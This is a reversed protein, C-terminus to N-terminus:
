VEGYGPGVTEAVLIKLRELDGALREECVAPWEERLTPRCGGTAM